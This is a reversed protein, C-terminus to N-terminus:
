TTGSFVLRRHAAQSLTLPCRFSHWSAEHPTHLCTRGRHGIVMPQRRDTVCAHVPLRVRYVPVLCPKIKRRAFLNCAGYWLPLQYVRPNYEGEIVTLSIAKQDWALWVYSLWSYGTCRFQQVDVKEPNIQGRGPDRQWM